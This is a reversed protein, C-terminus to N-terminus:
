STIAQLSFGDDLIKHRKQLLKQAEMGKRIVNSDYLNAM